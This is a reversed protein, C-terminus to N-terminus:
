TLNHAFAEIADMDAPRLGRSARPTILLARRDATLKDYLDGSTPTETDDTWILRHGDEIVRRAAAAKAEAIGDSTLSDTFIRALPPLNWLRELQDADTCWSSAWRVEAAASQHLARIRDILQPEWRMPWLTGNGRASSRRPARSWGAKGANIVGDVDLLWITEM